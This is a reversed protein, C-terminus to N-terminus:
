ALLYIYIKNIKLVIFFVGGRTDKPYCVFICAELHSETKDIKTKLEHAPCVRSTFTVYIPNVIMRYNM